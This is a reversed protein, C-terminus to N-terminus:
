WTEGESKPEYFDVTVVHGTNDKTHDTITREVTSGHFTDLPTNWGMGCTCLAKVRLEAM